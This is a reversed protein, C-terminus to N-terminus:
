LIIKRPDTIKGSLATAAVTAPAALMVEGDPSGMRGKFNRTTTSLCREGPGILGLHGGYCAGCTSNTVVAGSETLIELYGARMADLYIRQTAPTVIMRVGKAIKKGKLIEAAVAIDELRGNSCSGIIVQQVPMGEVETVPRCNGPIFHPMAIYPVVGSLDIERTQAYEADADAIVPTFDEVARDKVYELLKEDCPFIAFEANIEACMTAVSQRQAITMRSVGEGGFELNTNIADGYVGAINLFLDKGDVMESFSGRLMYLITPAVQYWNEGTCWTYLMDAPGFGRAACNLAGSACTHSDGAAILKGPLAFGREALMQHIVGHDGLDFLKTIGHKKAFRRAKIGGEADKTTPAPVAHDLFIICRDPHSIKKVKEFDTQGGVTFFMDHNCAWDIKCTLIDGPKVKKQGSHAALIKEAMTMGM